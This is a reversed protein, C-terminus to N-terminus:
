VSMMSLTPSWINSDKQTLGFSLCKLTLVVVIKNPYTKKGVSIGQSTKCFCSKWMHNTEEFKWFQDFMNMTGKKFFFYDHICYLM